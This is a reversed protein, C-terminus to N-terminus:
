VDTCVAMKETVGELYPMLAIIIIMTMVLFLAKQITTKESRGRLRICDKLRTSQNFYPAMQIPRQHPPLALPDYFESFLHNLLEAPPSYRLLSQIAIHLLM